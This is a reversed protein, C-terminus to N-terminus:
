GVGGASGADVGKRAAGEKRKSWAKEMAKFSAKQVDPRPLFAEEESDQAILITNGERLPSRLLPGHDEHACGGLSCRPTGSCQFLGVSGHGLVPLPSRFISSGVFVMMRDTVLM